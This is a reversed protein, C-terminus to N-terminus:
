EPLKEWRLLTVTSVLMAPQSLLYRGPLYMGLYKLVYM